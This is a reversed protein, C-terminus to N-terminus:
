NSLMWVYPTVSILSVLIMELFMIMRIRFGEKQYFKKKKNVTM